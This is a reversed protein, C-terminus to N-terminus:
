GAVITEGTKVDVEIIYEGGDVTNGRAMEDKFFNAANYVVWWAQKGDRDIKRVMDPDCDIGTNGLVLENAKAIAEIIKM